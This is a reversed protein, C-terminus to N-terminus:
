PWRMTGHVSRVSRLTPVSCFVSMCACCRNVITYSARTPREINQGLNWSAAITVPCIEQVLSVIQHQKKHSRHLRYFTNQANICFDNTNPHKIWNDNIRPSNEEVCKTVSVSSCAKRESLCVHHRMFFTCVSLLVPHHQQLSMRTHLHVRARLIFPHSQTPAHSVYRASHSQRRVFTYTHQKFADVQTM